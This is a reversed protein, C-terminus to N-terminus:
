PPLKDLRRQYQVCDVVERFRKNDSPKRALSVTPFVRPTTCKKRMQVRCARDRIGVGNALDPSSVCRQLQRAKKSAIRPPKQIALTIDGGLDNLM